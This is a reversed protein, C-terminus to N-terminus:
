NGADTDFFTMKFSPSSRRENLEKPPAFRGPGEEPGRKGFTELDNLCQNFFFAFDELSADNGCLALGHEYLRKEWPKDQHMLACNSLFLYHFAKRRKTLIGSKVLEEAKSRYFLYKENNRLRWYEAIYGYADAEDGPHEGIRECLSVSERMWKLMLKQQGIEWYGIALNYYANARWEDPLDLQRLCEQNLWLGVQGIKPIAQRLYRSHTIAAFEMAELVVGPRRFWKLSLAVAKKADLRSYRPLRPERFILSDQIPESKERFWRLEVLVRVQLFLSGILYNFLGSQTFANQEESRNEDLFPNAGLEDIIELVDERFAVLKALDIPDCITLKAVEGAQYHMQKLFKPTAKERMARAVVLEFIGPPTKESQSFQTEVIRERHDDIKRGNSYKRRGLRERLEIRTTLLEPYYENVMRHLHGYSLHEKKGNSSLNIDRKEKATSRWWLSDDDKSSLLDKTTAFRKAKQRLKDLLIFRTLERMHRRVVLGEKRGKEKTYDLRKNLYQHFELDCSRRILFHVEREFKRRHEKSAEDCLTKEKEEYNKWYRFWITNMRDWDIFISKQSTSPVM